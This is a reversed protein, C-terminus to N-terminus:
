PKAAAAVQAQQPRSFRNWLGDAVYVRISAPSMSFQIGQELCKGLAPALARAAARESASAPMTRLLADSGSVDNFVVCDAFAGLARAKPLNDSNSVYTRDIVEVSGPALTPAVPHGALYTEEALFGRLMERKFKFGLTNQTVSAQKGLCESMDFTSAVDSIKAAKIDVSVPDSYTLIVAAAKKNRNYICRAFAKKILGADKAEVAQPAVPILSGTQVEPKLQGFAVAPMLGVFLVMVPLTSQRLAIAASM